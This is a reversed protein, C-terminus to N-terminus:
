LPASYTLSTIDVTDGDAIDNSSLNIDEIGTGVSCLIIIDTGNAARLQGEVAIGAVATSDPTITDAVVDGGSAPLFAPTSLPLSAIEIAAGSTFLRLTGGDVQDTVHEAIGNRVTDPHSVSM